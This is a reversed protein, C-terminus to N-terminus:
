GAQMVSDHPYSILSQLLVIQTASPALPIPVWSEGNPVICSASAFRVRPTDVTNMDWPM